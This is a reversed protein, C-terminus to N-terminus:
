FIPLAVKALEARNIRCFWKALPRINLPVDGGSLSNGFQGTMGDFLRVGVM